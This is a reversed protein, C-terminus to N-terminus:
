GCKGGLKGGNQPFRKGMATKRVTIDGQRVVPLIACFAGNKDGLKDKKVQM